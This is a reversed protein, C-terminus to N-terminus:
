GHRKTGDPLDICGLGGDLACADLELAGEAEAFGGFEIGKEQEVVEAVLVGGVVQGSERPARVPPDLGDGVHQGALHLVAVAQAVLPRM